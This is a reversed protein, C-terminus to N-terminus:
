IPLPGYPFSREKEKFSRRAGLARNVREIAVLRTGGVEIAGGGVGSGGVWPSRWYISPAGLEM